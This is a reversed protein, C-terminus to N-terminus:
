SGPGRYIGAQTYKEKSIEQHVELDWYHTTEIDPKHLAQIPWTDQVVSKLYPKSEEYRGEKHMEWVGRLCVATKSAEDITFVLLKVDLGRVIVVDGPTIPTNDPTLREEKRYNRQFCNYFDTKAQSNAKATEQEERYKRDRDSECGASLVAAALVAAFSLTTFIRRM